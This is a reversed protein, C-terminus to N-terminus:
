EKFQHLLQYVKNGILDKDMYMKNFECPKVNVKRVAVNNSGTIISNINILPDVTLYIYDVSENLNHKIYVLANKLRGFNIDSLEKEPVM